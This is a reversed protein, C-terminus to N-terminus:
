FTLTFLEHIYVTLFPWYEFTTYFFLTYTFLETFYCHSYFFQEDLTWQKSPCLGKLCWEVSCLWSSMPRKSQVHSIKVYDIPCELDPCRNLLPQQLVKISPTEKLIDLFTKISNFGALFFHIWSSFKAPNNKKLTSASNYVIM